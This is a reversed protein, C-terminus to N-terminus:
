FSNPTILIPLGTGPEWTMIMQYFFFESSIIGFTYMMEIEYQMLICLSERKDFTVYVQEHLIGQQDKTSKETKHKSHDGAPFPSAEQSENTIDLQSNTVQGNTDQSLHPVQNHRNRIKAGNSVKYHDGFQSVCPLLETLSNIKLLM